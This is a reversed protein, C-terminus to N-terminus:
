LLFDFYEVISNCLCQAVKEQYSPSKLNSRDEPNSLFGCEVLSGIKKANNLLYYDGPKASMKTQTLVKFHKQILKAFTESVANGKQYFAQAGHVSNNPYSNLHVSLFVDVKDANIIEMRKKMDERKRNSANASALDYKGDRTLIVEAGKTQLQKQLKKVISLNIDQEKENECRAGDDKGGHALQQKRLYPIYEGTYIPLLFTNLNSLRKRWTRVTFAQFYINWNTESTTHSKLNATKM